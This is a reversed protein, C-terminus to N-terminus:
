HFTDLLGRLKMGLAINENMRKQQEFLKRMGTGCGQTPARQQVVDALWRGETDGRIADTEVAVHVYPYFHRLFDATAQAEGATVCILNKREDLIVHSKSVRHLHALRSELFEHTHRMELFM